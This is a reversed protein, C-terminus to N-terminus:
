PLLFGRARLLGSLAILPLGMIATFDAGEIREFLAIGGAEIKYSGACDIPKDLAVYREIEAKTLKRMVLNATDVFEVVGKKHVIAVATMLFHERGQLGQLQEIAAAATGPKDLVKGDVIALQDCGIVLADKAKPAVAEAKALALKRVIESPETLSKKIADEDVGPPQAEFSLGLRELLERRYPSSSALVVRQAM